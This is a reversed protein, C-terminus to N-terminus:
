RFPNKLTVCQFIWAAAIIIAFIICGVVIWDGSDIKRM